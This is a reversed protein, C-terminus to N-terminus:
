SSHVSLNKLSPLFRTSDYPSSTVVLYRRARLPRDYTRTYDRLVDLRVHIVLM